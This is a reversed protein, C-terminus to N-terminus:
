FLGAISEYLIRKKNTKARLALYSYLCAFLFILADLALLDDAVLDHNRNSVVIKIIGIVTLCVGIMGASVSLIHQSMNENFKNTDEMNLM